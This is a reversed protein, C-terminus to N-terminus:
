KSTRSPTGYEPGAIGNTVKGKITASAAAVSATALLGLCSLLVALAWRGRVGRRVGLKRIGRGIPGHTSSHSGPSHRRM